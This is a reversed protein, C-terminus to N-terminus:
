ALGPWLTSPQKEYAVLSEAGAKGVRLIGANQESITTAFTGAVYYGPAARHPATPAVLNKRAGGTQHQDQSAFSTRERWYWTSTSTTLRGKEFQYLAGADYRGTPLMRVVVRHTGARPWM